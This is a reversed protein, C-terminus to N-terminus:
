FYDRSTNNQEMKAEKEIKIKEKGMFGWSTGPPRKSVSSLQYSDGDVAYPL